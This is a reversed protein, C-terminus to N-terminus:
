HHTTTALRVFLKKDELLRKQTIKMEDEKSLDLLVYCSAADKKTCLVAHVRANAALLTSEHVVEVHDDSDLLRILEPQKELPISALRRNPDKLPGPLKQLSSLDIGNGVKIYDTAVYLGELSDPNPLFWGWSGVGEKPLGFDDIRIMHNRKLHRTAIYTETRQNPGDLYVEYMYVVFLAYAAFIIIQQSRTTILKRIVLFWSGLIIKLSHALRPFDLICM